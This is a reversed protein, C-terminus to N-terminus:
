AVATTRGVVPENGRSVGRNGPGYAGANVDAFALMAGLRQASGDDFGVEGNFAGPNRFTGFLIDWIPLDGYNYGHLGRRHHVCHAEPRQILYGLWRPTRINWHQFLSYFAAIYGTLAAALPDLGLVLTTTLTAITVYMTIDFPHFVMSGPIDVRRPSHHLQHFLRWLLPFAHTSRHWVYNVFSVVIYGVVAGGAVGLGTGDLLRHRALWAVPILLPVVTSVTAMVLLFALGILGWARIPPFQRAPRIKEVAWMLLFTVPVLLGVIDEAQM